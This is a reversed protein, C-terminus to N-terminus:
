DNGTAREPKGAEPQYLIFVQTAGGGQVARIELTEDAMAARLRFSQVAMEAKTIIWGKSVLLTNFRRLAVKLGLDTKLDIGILTTEPIRGHQDLEFDEMFLYDPFLFTEPRLGPELYIMSDEDQVITPPETTACGGLFLVVGIQFIFVARM